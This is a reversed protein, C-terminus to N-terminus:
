RASATATAYPGRSAGANVTKRQAPSGSLRPRLRILVFLLSFVFLFSFVFRPSLIRETPLERALFGNEGVNPPLGRAQEGNQFLESFEQGLPTAPQEQRHVLHM